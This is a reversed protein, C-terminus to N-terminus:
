KSFSNSQLIWTRRVSEPPSYSFTSTNQLRVHGPLASLRPVLGAIARGLAHVAGGHVHRPTHDECTPKQQPEPTVRSLVGRVNQVACRGFEFEPRTDGNFTTSVPLDGGSPSITTNPEGHGTYWSGCLFFKACHACFAMITPM